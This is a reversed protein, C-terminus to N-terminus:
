SERRIRLSSRTKPRTDFHGSTSVAGRANAQLATPIIAGQWPLGKLLCLNLLANLSEERDSIGSGFIVAM